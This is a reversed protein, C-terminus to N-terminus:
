ESVPTTKQADFRDSKDTWFTVRPLTDVHWIIEGVLEGKGTVAALCRALECSKGARHDSATGDTATFIQMLVLVEIFSKAETNKQETHDKTKVRIMKRQQDSQDDIRSEVWKKRPHAHTITALRLHATPLFIGLQITEVMFHPRMIFIAFGLCILNRSNKSTGQKSTGKCKQASQM